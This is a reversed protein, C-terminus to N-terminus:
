LALFLVDTTRELATVDIPKRSIPNYSRYGYEEMLTKLDGLSSGLKFYAEPAVECIIPPKKATKNFFARTGRLVPLEFGEVDIKILDISDIKKAELYGDLRQVKVAIRESAEIEMFGPVMTNWGANINGAVSIPLVDESEGLACRTCALNYELNAQAVRELRSFLSPVPEFSHVHGKSGVLDLALASFYGVNAGLDLFTMGPRLFQELLIAIELGYDGFYIARMMRPDVELDYPFSVDGLKIIGVSPPSSELRRRIESRTKRLFLYPSRRFFTVASKLKRLIPSM